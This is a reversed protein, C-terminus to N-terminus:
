GIVDKEIEKMQYFYGNAKMLEEFSGAEVIRGDEMVIIQDMRELGTLRHSVLVVTAEEAQRFLEQYLREETLADVSSTPEDLLWVRAQKLMARALALRQKEGGSLNEGKELVQDDLSLHELAVRKLVAKMEQDNAESSALQLNDRITGYFFHNEQLVVNAQEWIKEKSLQRLESGNWRVVGQEPGVIGLLLQLVTSKGSGSAGVIATKSGRKLELNINTLARRGEGPYTYSVREFRIEPVENGPSQLEAETETQAPQEVVSALRRAASRSDEFYSPFAAMPTANEFVTLSIMVLMALFLGDLEGTTVLYAGLALVVWSVLLSAATNVARSALIQRGEREQEGVYEAAARSLEAEKNAQQQYLTLDKFGYLFETVETSLEGRKDRLNSNLRRQRLAFWAPILVGTLFLGTLLVLAIAVSYFATFVITAFFVLLLVVLPYFVRLFFHQLSEVDGVIRALLDGSRYTQFLSPALPELKEYFSLRLRSLMTFTARHSYYREVYRGLARLFGFLKVFAITVTLAYLPPMLAGKSILYGSSAFLGVAAIGALFGAIVSYVIDRKEHLMLKMVAALEKM